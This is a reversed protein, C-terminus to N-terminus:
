AQYCYGGDENDRLRRLLEVPKRIVREAEELHQLLRSFARPSERELWIEVCSSESSNSASLEYVEFACSSEQTDWPVVNKKLPAVEYNEAGTPLIRRELKNGEVTVHQDKLAGLPGNGGQALALDKTETLELHRSSVDGDSLLHGDAEEVSLMLAEESEEMLVNSSGKLLGVAEAVPLIKQASVISRGRATDQSFKWPNKDISRAPLVDLWREEPNCAGSFLPSTAAECHMGHFVPSTADGGGEFSSIRDMTMSPEFVGSKGVSVACPVMSDGCPMVPPKSFSSLGNDCVCVEESLCVHSFDRDELVLLRRPPLCWGDMEVMRLFVDKDLLSRWKQGRPPLCWDDMENEHALSVDFSKRSMPRESRPVVTVSQPLSEMSRGGEMENEHVLSVDFSKRSMPREGRPVVTVSQPLSEMSRGGEMENEHVLSVDFSKRSMPRESRPVATVSQPLSEMSRGGEMENEHVLSVDFSKRSMPREGRPVVTVSQPLSEMSRGGEMENEHVLSVDFSKRSMPREGRPVVTVSQPLSEMSRGGEMENEHVLSVDFSKRSMPRESRPVATVSQPLSEMSRGGEMENEHVLSVDFSKRSMPREGRPVVTVSQPLSEMSRGGEMENEHVLSVDFSKRSMPRESRPVVTVSQPLSEMSRGGEIESYMLVSANNTKEGASLNNISSYYHKEAPILKALDNQCSEAGKESNCSTKQSTNAIGALDEKEVETSRKNSKNDIIPENKQLPSPDLLYSDDVKLTAITNKVSTQSERSCQYPEGNIRIAKGGWPGHRLGEPLTFVSPTNPCHIYESSNQTLVQASPQLQASQYLRRTEPFHYETLHRCVEDDSVEAPRTITIYAFFGGGTRMIKVSFSSPFPLSNCIDLKLAMYLENKRCPLVADWDDGEFQIRHITRINGTNGEKTTEMNSTPLFERTQPLKIFTLPEKQAAPSEENNGPPKENPNHTPQKQITPFMHSLPPPLYFGKDDGMLRSRAPLGQAAVFRGAYSSDRPTQPPMVLIPMVCQQQKQQQYSQPLGNNLKSRRKWLEGHCTFTQTECDHRWAGTIASGCTPCVFIM